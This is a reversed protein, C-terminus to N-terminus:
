MGNEILACVIHGIIIHTEQVRATNESPVCICHECLEKLAGGSNGTMGITTIGLTNASEVASVINASNGSTSIGFFIDGSQGLAELQRSFISTYHYDNAIATINSANTNLAIAALGAREKEFRGVLEAAIHQADAASGGNGALMIKGKSRLTNICKDVILEITAVAIKDACMAKKVMISQEFIAIIDDKM